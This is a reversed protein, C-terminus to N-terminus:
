NQCRTLKQKFVMEERPSKEPQNMTKQTPNSKRMRMLRSTLTLLMMTKKLHITTSIAMMEKMMSDEMPQRTSTTRKRSSAVTLNIEVNLINVEKDLLGAMKAGANSRHARGAAMKLAGIHRFLLLIHKKPAVYSVTKLLLTGVDCPLHQNLNQM